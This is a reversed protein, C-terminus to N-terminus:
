LNHLLKIIELKIEKLSPIEKIGPELEVSSNVDFAHLNMKLLDKTHQINSVSLGGSLFFPIQQDYQKLISWDFAKGTGGYNGSKTDFLFYNAIKEYPKVAAFNFYKDVSFVKILGLGNEKLEYCQQVTESGHLQIFDLKHKQSLRIIEKSTENVFVGVRKISKPLTKPIIFENGVFRKSKPYFIFGMYDPLLKAVSLINEQDRM